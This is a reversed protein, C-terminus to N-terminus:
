RVLYDLSQPSRSGLTTRASKRTTCATEHFGDGHSSKGLLLSLVPFKLRFRGLPSFRHRNGAMLDIAQRLIGQACSCPILAVRAPFSYRLILSEGRAIM